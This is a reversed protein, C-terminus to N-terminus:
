FRQKSNIIVLNKIMGIFGATFEMLKLIIASFGLIPSRLFDKYNKFYCLFQEKLISLGSTNNKAFYLKATKGYNYKKMILKNFNLYGLNHLVTNRCFTIETVEKYRKHIDFDEGSSINEDYGRVENFIERKVIRASEINDNGWYCKREFAKVKSWFGNVMDVEHVILAGINPNDYLIKVSEEILGPALEMDSDLHYLIEGNSNEVGVNRSKTPPTYFLPKSITIIKVNFKSAIEVSPDSSEQDVMIIEINKYTQNRISLLCAELTKSSNRTPLIISLLTNM